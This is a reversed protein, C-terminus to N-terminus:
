CKSQHRSVNVSHETYKRRSKQRKRRSYPRRYSSGYHLSRDKAIRM